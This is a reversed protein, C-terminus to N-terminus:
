VPGIGMIYWYDYKGVSDLLQNSSKPVRGDARGHGNWTQCHDEWQLFMEFVITDDDFVHGYIYDTMSVFGFLMWSDFLTVDNKRM